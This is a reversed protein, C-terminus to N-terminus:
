YLNQPNSAQCRIIADHWAHAMRGAMDQDQVHFELYSEQDTDDMIPTWEVSRGIQGWTKTHVLFSSDGATVLTVTGLNGSQKTTTGNADLKGINDLVYTDTDQKDVPPEESDRSGRITVITVTLSCGSFAVTQGSIRGNRDYEVQPPINSLIWSQIQQLSPGSSSSQNNAAALCQGSLASLGSQKDAPALQIARNFQQVAENCRSLNKLAGGSIAYAEWQQANLKIAAKALALAQDNNGSQLQANARRILAEYNSASQSQALAVHTIFVLCLVYMWRFRKVIKDGEGM